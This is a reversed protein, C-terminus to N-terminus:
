GVAFETDARMFPAHYGIVIDTKPIGKDILQQAAIMDTGDHQVWVKGDETVDIHLYCGYFRNDEKWGHYFLLYHGGEDDKIIQHKIPSDPKIGRTGMKEVIERVIEKYRTLKDM